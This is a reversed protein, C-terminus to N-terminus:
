AVNRTPPFLPFSFTIGLACGSLCYAAKPLQSGLPNFGIDAMMHRILKKTKRESFEWMVKGLM